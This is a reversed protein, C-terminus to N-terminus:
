RATTAPESTDCEARVRASNMKYKQLAQYLDSGVVAWDSAIADWDSPLSVKITKTHPFFAFSKWAHCLNSFTGHHPTAVFAFDRIVFSNNKIEYVGWNRLQKLCQGFWQEFSLELRNTPTSQMERKKSPAPAMNRLREDAM